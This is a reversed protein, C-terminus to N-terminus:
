IKGRLKCGKGGALGLSSGRASPGGSVSQVITREAVEVFAAM